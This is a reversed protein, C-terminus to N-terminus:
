RRPLTMGTELMRPRDVLNVHNYNRVELQCGVAEAQLSEFIGHM